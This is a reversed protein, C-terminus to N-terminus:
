WTSMEAAWDTGANVTVPPPPEFPALVGSMVLTPQPLYRARQDVRDTNSSPPPLVGNAPTNGVFGHQGTSPLLALLRRREEIPVVFPAPPTDTPVAPTAGLTAGSVM